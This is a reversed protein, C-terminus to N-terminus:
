KIFVTIIHFTIATHFETKYYKEKLIANILIIQQHQMIFTMLKQKHNIICIVYKVKLCYHLYYTM